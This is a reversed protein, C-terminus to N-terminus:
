RYKAGCSKERSGALRVASDKRVSRNCPTATAVMMHFFTDDAIMDVVLVVPDSFEFTPMLLMDTMLRRPDVTRPDCRLFAAVAFEAFHEIAPLAVLVRRRPRVSRQRLPVVSRGNRAVIM